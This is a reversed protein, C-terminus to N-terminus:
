RVSDTPRTLRWVAGALVALAAAGLLGSEPFWATTGALAQPGTLRYTAVEGIAFCASNWGFHLAVPLALGGGRQYALGFVLGMLTLTAVTLPILEPPVDQYLINPLHFAGFLLSAAALGRVAGWRRVVVPQIAGRFAFEEWMAVLFQPGLVGLAISRLSIQHSQVAAWGVGLMLAFLGLVLAGALLAGLGARALAPGTIALDHGSHAARQSLRLAVAGLPMGVLYTGWAIWGLDAVLMTALGGVLALYYLTLAIV